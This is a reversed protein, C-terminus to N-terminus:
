QCVEQLLKVNQLLNLRAFILSFIFALSAVKGFSSWIKCKSLSLLLPIDRFPVVHFTGDILLKFLFSRLDIFHIKLKLGTEPEATLSSHNDGNLHLWYHSIRIWWLCGCSFFWLYGYVTDFIQKDIQRCCVKVEILNPSAFCFLTM